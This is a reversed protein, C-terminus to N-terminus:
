LTPDNKIVLDKWNIENSTNRLIKEQPAQVLIIQHLSGTNASEVYDKKRVIELFKQCAESEFDSGQQRNIIIQFDLSEFKFNKLCSKLQNLYDLVIPEIIKDKNRRIESIKDKAHPIDNLIDNIQKSM